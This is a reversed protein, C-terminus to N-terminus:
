CLKNTYDDKEAIIRVISERFSLVNKNVRNFGTELLIKLYSVEPTPLIIIYLNPGKNVVSWLWVM